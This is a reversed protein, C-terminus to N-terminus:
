EGPRVFERDIAVWQGPLVSDRVVLRWRAVGAADQGICVAVGVPHRRDSAGVVEAAATVDRYLFPGRLPGANTFYRPM